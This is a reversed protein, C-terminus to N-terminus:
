KCIGIQPCSARETKYDNIKPFSPERKIPQVHEFMNMFKKILLMLNLIEHGRAKLSMYFNWLKFHRRQGWWNRSEGKQHADIIRNEFRQWNLFYTCAAIKCSTWTYSPLFMCILIKKENGRGGIKEDDV